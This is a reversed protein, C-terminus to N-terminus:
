QKLENTQNGSLLARGGTQDLRDGLKEAAYETLEAM